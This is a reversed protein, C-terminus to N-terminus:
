SRRKMGDGHVCDVIMAVPTMILKSKGFHRLTFADDVIAPVKSMTM